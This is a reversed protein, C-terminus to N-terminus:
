KGVSRDSENSNQTKKPGFLIERSRSRVISKCGFSLFIFLGQSANLFIFIYSLLDILTWQYVFGFIWTIGTICTIKIYIILM